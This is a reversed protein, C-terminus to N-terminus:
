CFKVGWERDNIGNHYHPKIRVIPVSSLNFPSEGAQTPSESKEIIRYRSSEGFLTLSSSMKTMIKVRLISVSFLSTIM